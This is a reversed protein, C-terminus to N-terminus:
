FPIDSDDYNSNSQRNENAVRAMAPATAPKYNDWSLRLWPGRTGQMNWGALKIEIDDADTSQLLEKLATRTMSIVGKHDPHSPIKKYGNPSLSGTNPYKNGSM